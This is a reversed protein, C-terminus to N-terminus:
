GFLGWVQNLIDEKRPNLHVHAFIRVKLTWISIHFTSGWLQNVTWFPLLHSSSLPINWSFRNTITSFYLVMVSPPTAGRQLKAPGVYFGFFVYVWLLCLYLFLVTVCFLSSPKSDNTGELMHGWIGWKHCKPTMKPQELAGRHCKRIPRFTGVYWGPHTGVLDLRFGHLLVLKAGGPCSIAGYAENIANQPWKWANWLGGIASGSSDLPELMGAQIHGM